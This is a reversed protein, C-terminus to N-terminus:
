AEGWYEDLVKLGPSDVIASRSLGANALAKIFAERAEDTAYLTVDGWWIGNLGFVRVTMRHTRSM